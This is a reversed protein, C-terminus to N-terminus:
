KKKLLVLEVWQDGSRWTQELDFDTLAPTLTETTFQQAAGMALWDGPKFGCGVDQWQITADKQALAGFQVQQSAAHHFIRPELGHSKGLRTLCSRVLHQGFEQYAAEVVAANQTHELTLLLFDGSKLTQAAGQFLESRETENLFGLGGGAIM